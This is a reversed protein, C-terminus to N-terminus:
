ISNDSKWQARCSCDTGAILEEKKLIEIEVGSEMEPFELSYPDLQQPVKSYIDQTM